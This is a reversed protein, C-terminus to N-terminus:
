GLNVVGREVRNRDTAYVHAEGLARHKENRLAFFTGNYCSSMM